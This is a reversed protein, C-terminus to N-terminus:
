GAHFSNERDAEPQAYLHQSPVWSAPISYLLRQMLRIMQAEFCSDFLALLRKNGTLGCPRVGLREFSM